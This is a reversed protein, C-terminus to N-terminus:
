GMRKKIERFARKVSYGKLECFSAIVGGANAIFDDIIRVGKKRLLKKAEDSIQCNGGEIILPIHVFWTWNQSNILDNSACPVFIDFCYEDVKDIDFKLFKSKIPKIDSVWVEVGWESLYKAVNKGVTGYGIVGCVKGKIRGKLVKRITLAIGFGTMGMGHPIGKSTRTATGKGFTKVIYDMEKSGIGIDPATIYKM